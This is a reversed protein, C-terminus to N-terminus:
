HTVVWRYRSWGVTNLGGGAVEVYVPKNGRWRARGVLRYRGDAHIRGTALLVPAPLEPGYGGRNTLGQYFRVLHGARNPGTRGHAVVRGGRRVERSTLWLSVRPGVPVRVASSYSPGYTDDGAFHFRYSFTYRPRYSTALVTGGSDTTLTAVTRFASEGAPRVQVELPEGAIAVPSQASTSLGGSMSYPDGAVAIPADVMVAVYIATPTTTTARAPAAALGAGMLVVAAAATPIRWRTSM